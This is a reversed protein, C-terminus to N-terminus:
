TKLSNFITPIFNLHQGSSFATCMPSGVVLWPREQKLRRRAERRRDEQSFDWTRDDEDVITIYLTMGPRMGMRARHHPM